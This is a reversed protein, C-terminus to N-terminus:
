KLAQYMLKKLNDVELKGKDKLTFLFAARNTNGYSKKIDLALDKRSFHKREELFRQMGAVIRNVEEYANCIKSMQGLLQQAIEFDFTEEVKSYFTNYPPCGLNFFLDIIADETNLQSKIKHCQNYWDGKIKVRNRFNNYWAVVGEKGKWVKVNTVIDSISNFQYVPPTPIGVKRSVECLKDYGVSSYDDKNIIDLLWFRIEGPNIVIVNNPTELELIYSFRDNKIVYDVFDQNQLLVEFDAANPQTSYNLTGRTRMNLQQNYYDVIVCTGDKKELIFKDNFKDPDPYLDPKEGYNMFKLLGASRLVGDKNWVSSRFILNDKDWKAGIHNPIVLLADEGCFKGETVNFHERDILNLDIHM